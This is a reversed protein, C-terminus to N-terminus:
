FDWDPSPRPLCLTDDLAAVLEPPAAFDGGLTLGSAPVAGLWLRSFAGVSARLTPLGAEIGPAARSAPGLTVVYRGGIGRWPADDPLFRTIPDTLDLNFRVEPRPLRTRALCTELDCIRIQWYALAETGRRFESTRTTLMDRVPHKLRDQLRFPRPERMRVLHVQDGLGHLLALLERLQADTRYALMKVTYPGNEGEAMGWIFHTLAGDPGDAYGLGFGGPTLGLEGHTHAAAHLNCSGHGRRRNCLADHMAAWDDATLRKPPRARGDVRLDAPDFSALFEYGGSGFGLRNYFGHEFMGLVSVHAGAAAEAAVLRATVRGALGQRRAPRGTLVASVAAMRLREDLYQLDGPASAAFAEAAGDLEAVFTRGTTMFRHVHAADKGEPLWGAERWVRVAAARDREADYPRILPVKM